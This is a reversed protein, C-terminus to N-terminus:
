TIKLGDFQHFSGRFFIILINISDVWAHSSFVTPIFGSGSNTRKTVPFSDVLSTLVVMSYSGWPKLAQFINAPKITHPRGQDLAAASVAVGGGRRGGGGGGGEGSSPCIWSLVGTKKSRPTLKKAWVIIFGWRNKGTVTSYLRHATFVKNFCYSPCDSMGTVINSPITIKASSLKGARSVWWWRKGTSTVQASQGGLIQLSTLTTLAEWYRFGTLHVWFFRQCVHKVQKWPFVLQVKPLPRIGWTALM